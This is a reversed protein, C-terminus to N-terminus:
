HAKNYTHAPGPNRVSREGRLLSSVNCNSIVVAFEVDPKLARNEDFFKKRLIWM